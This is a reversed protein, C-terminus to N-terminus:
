TAGGRWARVVEAAARLVDPLSAWGKGGIVCGIVGVSVVGWTLLLTPSPHVHAVWVGGVLAALCLILTRLGAFWSAVRGM